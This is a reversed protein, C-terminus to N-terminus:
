SRRTRALVVVSRPGVAYLPSTLPVEQPPERFDDPAERGTDVVRRWEDTPGEQVVFDLAEWYANVMVYLNYPNNNGGQTHLFEDGARLIPTGNALLLLWGPTAM